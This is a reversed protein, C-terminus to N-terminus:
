AAAYAEPHVRYTCNALSIKEVVEGKQTVTTPPTNQTSSFNQDSPFCLHMCISLIDFTKITIASVWSTSSNSEPRSSLRKKASAYVTPTWAWMITRAMLSWFIQTKTQNITPLEQFNQLLSFCSCHLNPLQRQYHHSYTWQVQKIKVLNFPQM